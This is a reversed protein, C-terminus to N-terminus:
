ALRTLRVMLNQDVVEFEGWAVQVRGANLPIDETHSWLSEVIQGTELRLLDRIKFGEIPIGAATAVTMQSLLPWSPHEEMRMMWPQPDAIGDPVPRAAAAVVSSDTEIKALESETM